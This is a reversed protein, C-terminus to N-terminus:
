KHERHLYLIFLLILLLAIIIWLWNMNSNIIVPTNPIQSTTKQSCSGCPKPVAAAPPTIYSTNQATQPTM